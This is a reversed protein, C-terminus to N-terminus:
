DRLNGQQPHPGERTTKNKEGKDKIGSKKGSQEEVAGKGLNDSRQTQYTDKFLYTNKFFYTAINLTNKLKVLSTIGYVM